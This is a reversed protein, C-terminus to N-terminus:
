DGGMPISKFASIDFNWYGPGLYEDGTSNGLRYQDTPPKICDVNFQHEFTREGRPINPNCVIDPRSGPTHDWRHWHPHRDARELLQLEAGPVHRKYDDHHRLDALQRLDGQDRHQRVKPQSEASQVLLQSDPRSSTAGYERQREPQLLAAGHRRQYFPDITTLNKSFIQYTYAAGM